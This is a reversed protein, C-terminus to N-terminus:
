GKVVRALLRSACVVSVTGMTVIFLRPQTALLSVFSGQFVAMFTATFVDAHPSMGYYMAATTTGLTAAWTTVVDANSSDYPDTLYGYDNHVFVRSIAELVDM